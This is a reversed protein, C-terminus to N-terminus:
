YVIIKDPNDDVGWEPYISYIDLEEVKGLTSGMAATGILPIPSTIGFWKQLPHNDFYWKAMAALTEARESLVYFVIADHISLVPIICDVGNRKIDRCLRSVAMLVLDSAFRQIPANTAKRIAEWRVEREPSKAGPYRHVVGHLSRVYGNTTVMKEIAQHWSVLRNYLAFFKNWNDEAEKETFDVGYDTKAYRRFARPRMGYLLGFNVAKAASRYKKRVEKPLKRFEDLSMGLMNAATLEHLDTGERYARIMVPDNSAWAVLRLEIQSMDIELIDFGPPPIFINRYIPAYKGRKPTSHLSPERCSLRGTRTIDFNFSPHIYGDSDAFQDYGKSFNTVLTDMKSYTMYDSVWKHDSFFPNLHDKISCSAEGSDTFVVPKLGFGRKSFLIDRVFDGRSFKLGKKIHNPDSKISSPVCKMLRRKIDEIGEIKLDKDGKQFRNCVTVLESSSYLFGTEELFTAFYYMAPFTVRNMVRNHKEDKLIDLLALYAAFGGAVDNCGYELMKDHPVGIMNNKDVTKNFEDNAGSFSPVYRKWIEDLNYTRATDDAFFAMVEIAAIWGKVTIGMTKLAHYDFKFYQGIKKISSDEMITKLDRILEDRQLEKGNWDWFDRSLPISIANNTDFAIQVTVIEFGPKYWKLGTTETDVCIVEPIGNKLYPSLDTCYKYNRVTSMGLKSTDFNAKMLKVFYEFDKLVVSETDRYYYVQSLSLSFFMPVESDHWDTKFTGRIKTIQTVRGLLQSAGFKGFSIVYNCKCEEVLKDFSEKYQKVFEWKQKETKYKDKDMFGCPSIFYFDSLKLNFRSILREFMSLIDGSIPSQSCYNKSDPPDCVMLIKANPNGATLLKLMPKKKVIFKKM